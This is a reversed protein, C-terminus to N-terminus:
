ASSAEMTARLCTWRIRWARQSPALPEMRDLEYMSGFVGISHGTPFASRTPSGSLTLSFVFVFLTSPQVYIAHQIQRTLVMIRWCASHLSISWPRKRRPWYISFYMVYITPRDFSHSARCARYSFTRSSIFRRSCQSGKTVASESRFGYEGSSGRRIGRHNSKLTQSSHRRRSSELKTRCDPRRARCAM